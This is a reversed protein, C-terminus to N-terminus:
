RLSATLRTVAYCERGYRNKGAKKKRSLRSRGIIDRVSPGIIRFLTM